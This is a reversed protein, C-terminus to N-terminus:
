YANVKLSSIEVYVQAYSKQDSGPHQLLTIDEEQDRDVLFGPAYQPGYDGFPYQPTQLVAWQAPSLYTEERRIHPALINRWSELSCHVGDDPATLSPSGSQPGPVVPIDYM